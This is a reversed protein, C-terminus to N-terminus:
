KKTTRPRRGTPPTRIPLVDSVVPKGDEEGTCIEAIMKQMEEEMNLVGDERGKKGRANRHRANCDYIDLVTDRIGMCYDIIELYEKRTIEDMPKTYALVAFRLRQMRKLGSNTATLVKGRKPPKPHDTPLMPDMRRHFRQGVELQFAKLAEAHHMNGWTCYWDIPFNGVERWHKLISPPLNEMAKVMRVVYIPDYGAKRAFTKPDVDFERKMTLAANAIEYTRLPTRATNEIINTWHESIKSTNLPLVIAPIFTWGLKRAAAVRRFGARLFFSDGQGESVTIPVKLGEESMSDALPDIESDAPKLRINSFDTECIIKEIPIPRTWDAISQSRSEGQHGHRRIEFREHLFTSRKALQPPLTSQSGPRDPSLRALLEEQSPPKPGAPPTPDPKAVKRVTTPPASKLSKLFPALEPLGEIAEDYDGSLLRSISLAEGFQIKDQDDPEEQDNM